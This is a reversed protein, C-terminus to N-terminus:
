ACSNGEDHLGILRIREQSWCGDSDRQWRMIVDVGQRGFVRTCSWECVRREIGPQTYDRTAGHCVVEDCTEEAWPDDDPRGDASECLNREHGLPAAEYDVREFCADSREKRFGAYVTLGCVGFECVCQWNCWWTDAISTGSGTSPNEGDADACHVTNVAETCEVSMEPQVREASREVDTGCACILGLVMM